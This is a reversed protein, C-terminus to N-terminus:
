VFSLLPFERGLIRKSPANLWNELVTGYVSRFDVNFVLDGNNLATLSPQKGYMGPKIAGGLVFLPAAAGHDTGNSGNQAVRRGFESFTMLTVRDFNGQAKLDKCFAGIAQGLERLLREHAGTQNTHTDYGSQSVYYVRTALDGAIMRAVLNLNDALRGQPYEVTSQHKRAIAGIRDSSLQADLATRQLFDLTSVDHQYIGSISGISGGDLPDSVITEPRNLDRYISEASQEDSSSNLRRYQEPRSLTVGTPEPASFAQPMENGVSVGVTPDAGKCCADFYRGLWGYSENRDADSATQWIETSRFHSRNPNPYGVGHVIALHGEDYITKLDRLEPHLGTVDDIKLLDKSPIGIVPRARHYEDDEFPILTNLGDNGGALQVVVLIPNDKGTVIQVPSEAALADLAFFTRELFVPLTWAAAAGLMSTRLFERRTHLTKTHPESNNM